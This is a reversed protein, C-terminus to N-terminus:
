GFIERAAATWNWHAPRLGAIDSRFYVIEHGLLCGLYVTKMDAGGFAASSINGLRAGFSRDLHPRGMEGSLFAAEVRALDDANADEIVVTQRGDPAVRIVRNSVISTIWIGGMHDFTLGDPFTGAGFEAITARASLDGEAGVDFSTLRRAFTENVFLQGTEPHIVCENTYGLGDAVIRAANKDRLVIFGDDCDPRYGLNRPQRRTSVTVWMRGGADLHVYNTPPLPVGAVELMVDTLTGDPALRYVGGETEGLHALLWGGEPLIAIGNPQPKFDGRALVTEQRGDPAILTVGGRWDAVHLVGDSTCLVCEPRRLDRGIPELRDLPIMANGSFLLGFRRLASVQLLAFFESGTPVRAQNIRNRLLDAARISLFHRQAGDCLGRVFPMRLRGLVTMVPLALHGDIPLRM